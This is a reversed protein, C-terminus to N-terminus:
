HWGRKEYRQKWFDEYRLSNVYQYFSEFVDDINEPTLRNEEGGLRDFIYRNYKQSHHGEDRYEDLDTIWDVEDMFFYVRVNDYGMLLEAAARYIDLVSIRGSLQIRQWYVVSVPPFYFVFQTEPNAEVYKTLNAINAQCNRLRQADAESQEVEWEELEDASYSLRAEYEKACTELSTRFHADMREVGFLDEELWTYAYDNDPQTHSIAEMTRLVAATFVDSNFIYNVDDLLIDNYLYKPLETFRSDPPSTLQFENLDTIIERIENGSNFVLEYISALDKTGAGSYSLKVLRQGREEFWSAQFNETMSSGVIASDYRFNKAIGPTQYVQSYQYETTGAIADHYHYFPDVIVIFATILSFLGLFTVAFQLLFRRM